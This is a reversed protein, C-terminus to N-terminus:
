WDLKGWKDILLKYNESFDGPAEPHGRFTSRLSAHDLYCRDDVAVKLGARRVEMCASADDCGYKTFREDLFGGSFTQPDSESLRALIQRTRWPILVGVFAIHVVERLGYAPHSAPLPRQLPQGTLNTTCGIIGIEPHEAASRCMLSFGNPSQLLTDDNLVICDVGECMRLGINVNRSYVFPSAGKVIEIPECFRAQDIAQVSLGDDVVVIPCSPEHKRLATLCPIINSDTRSPIVVAYGPM